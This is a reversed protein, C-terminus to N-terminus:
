LYNGIGFLSEPIEIAVVKGEGEDDLILEPHLLLLKYLEMESEFGCLWLRRAGSKDHYFVPM